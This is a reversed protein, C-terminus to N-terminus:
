RGDFRAAGPGLVVDNCDLGPATLNSHNHFIDPDREHRVNRMYQVHGGAYLINQGSGGHNPSNGSLAHGAGDHRPTDALLPLGAPVRAPLACPKGSDCYGLNYAYDGDRLAPHTRLRSADLAALDKLGPVTRERRLGNSPCDLLGADHILGLDKLRCAYSGAFPAPDQADAYPFRNHATAYRILGVGLQQLNAACTATRAAWQSQRVAPLLTLVGACFIGAAMALDPLRFPGRAPAHDIIARWRRQRTARAITRHALGAPPEPDPGDDLLRQLGAELQALTAALSPDAAVQREARQRDPGDMLGLSYDLMENPTM